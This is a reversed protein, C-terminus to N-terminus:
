SSFVLLVLNQEFVSSIIYLGVDVLLIRGLTPLPGARKKSNIKNNWISNYDICLVVKMSSQSFQKLEDDYFIISVLCLINFIFLLLIGFIFIVM